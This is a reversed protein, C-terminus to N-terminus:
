DYGKTTHPTITRGGVPTGEGQVEDGKSHDVVVPRDEPPTYPGRRQGELDMPTMGLGKSDKPVHVKSPGRFPRGGEDLVCSNGHRGTPSTRRYTVTTTEEYVPVSGRSSPDGRMERPVSGTVTSTTGRGVFVDNWLCFPRGGTM